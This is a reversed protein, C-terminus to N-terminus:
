YEQNLFGLIGVLDEGSARKIRKAVRNKARTTSDIEKQVTGSKTFYKAYYKNFEALEKEAKEKKLLDNNKEAEAVEKKLSHYEKKLNEKAKGYLLDRHDTDRFDKNTHSDDL